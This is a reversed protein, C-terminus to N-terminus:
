GLAEILPAKTIENPSLAIAAAAAAAVRSQELPAHGPSLAAAGLAAPLLRRWLGVAVGAGGGGAGAAGVGEAGLGAACCSAFGTEHPTEWPTIRM